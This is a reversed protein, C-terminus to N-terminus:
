TFVLWTRAPRFVLFKWKLEWGHYDAPQVFPPPTLSGLVNVLLGSM